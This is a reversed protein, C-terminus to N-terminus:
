RFSRKFLLKSKLLLATMLTRASVYRSLTSSTSEDPTIDDWTRAFSSNVVLGLYGRSIDELTTHRLAYEMHHGEHHLMKVVPERIVVPIINSKQLWFNYWSFEYPSERLLDAYQMQRPKMFHQNLSQLVTSSFVQHNHCTLVRPDDLGILSRIHELHSARSQWYEIFYRRDVRLENDEVLFSYPVSDSFMFDRVHFDRVFIMDSDLVFYNGFHQLEWYALKVIQQNIYGVRMDGFPENVLYHGLLGEDLVSINTGTFLQFADLDQHPVVIELSINEINHANFSEVLRSARKLDGSYSKLM